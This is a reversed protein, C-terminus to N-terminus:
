SINQRVDGMGDGLYIDKGYTFAESNLERSIQAVNNDTHLRVGSFDHCFRPEFLVRVSKPMLQDHKIVSNIRAELSSFGKPLHISVLKTQLPEEEEEDMSQRQLEGEEVIPQRQVLPTIWEAVPKTQSEEQEEGLSQQQVRPEKMSMVQEAVRDDEQEYIDNPQGIKLKAQIVSANLMRQVAQNGISRQLNLIHEASSTKLHSPAAKQRRVISRKSEPASSKTSPKSRNGM